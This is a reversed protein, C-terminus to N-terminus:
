RLMITTDAIFLSGFRVMGLSNAPTNETAHPGPWSRSCIQHRGSPGACHPAAPMSTGIGLQALEAAVIRHGRVCPPSTRTPM